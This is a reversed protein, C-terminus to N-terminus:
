VYDIDSPYEAFSTYSSMQYKAALSCLQAETQGLMWGETNIINGTDFDLATRTNLLLLLDAKKFSNLEIFSLGLNNMISIVLANLTSDHERLVAKGVYVASQRDRMISLLKEITQVTNNETESETESENVNESVRSSLLPISGLMAFALSASLFSRRSLHRQNKITKTELEKM